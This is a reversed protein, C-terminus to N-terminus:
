VSACDLAIEHTDVIDGLIRIMNDIGFLAGQDPGESPDVFSSHAFDILRVQIPLSRSHLPSDHNICSVPDASTNTNSLSGEYVLLLSAGYIRVPCCALSKRLEKLQNRLQCLLQLRATHSSSM